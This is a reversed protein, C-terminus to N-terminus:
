GAEEIVDVGAPPVFMFIGEPVDLNEKINKFNM